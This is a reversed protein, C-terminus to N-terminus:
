GISCGLSDALLTTLKRDLVAYSFYRRATEYNHRVMKDRLSKDTLVQRTKRVTDDSVYGDM